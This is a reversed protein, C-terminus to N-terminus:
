DYNSFDSQHQDAFKNVALQNELMLLSIQVGQDKYQYQNDMYPM